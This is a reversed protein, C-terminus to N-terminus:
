GGGGDILVPHSLVRWPGTAPGSTLSARAEELGPLEGRRGIVFGLVAEEGAVGGLDRGRATFRAAGESSVELPVELRRAGRADVLFAWGELAGEVRTAPRLSVELRSDPRLVPIPGASGSSRLARDGGELQLAYEPLARDGATVFFLGAAAAAISGAALAAFVAGARRRQHVGLPIVPAPAEAAQAALISAVFRQKARADLPRHAEVAAKLEHDAEAERELDALAEPALEGAALAELRPDRTEDRAIAAVRKLLEESM